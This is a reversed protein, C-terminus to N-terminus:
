AKPSRWLHAGGTVEITTGTSYASTLLYSVAHAVDAATGVRQLLTREGMRRREAASADAPPLVPGPLVANVRFSPAMAKALADVLSLLAAKSVCHALYGPWLERAGSDSIAVLDGGDRVGAFARALLYFSRLNTDMVQSWQRADLELPRAGVFSAAAHVIADLELGRRSAAALLRAAGGPRALDARLIPAGGLEAAFERAVQDVSRTHLVVAAGDDSLRRAIAAGVRRCGGTVLVTRGTLPRPLVTAGTEGDVAQTARAARLRSGRRTM